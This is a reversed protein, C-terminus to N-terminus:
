LDLSKAVLTIDSGYAATTDDPRPSLPAIPPLGPTTDGVWIRIHNQAPFRFELSVGETPANYFRFAWPVKTSSDDHIPEVHGAWGAATVNLESPLRVVLSRAERKSTIQLRITQEGDLVSNETISVVPATMPVSTADSTLVSRELGATYAPASHKRATPGLIRGTWADPAADYSVWKAKNEDASVSYILTDPRPHESSWRSLRIGAGIFCASVVFIAMLSLRTRGALRDFVPPAIALLTTLLFAVAALGLYSLFLSVFFMYALPVLILLAPFLFAVHCISRTPETFRRGLLMGAMGAVFSWELVYTGGVLFWCLVLTLLSVALLQGAALNASGLKNGLFRQSAIALGFAIGVVGAFLLQNSTSDGELFEGAIFRASAFAAFSGGIIILFQLFFSGFGAITRGFSLELRPASRVCGLAFLIPALLAVMWAFWVPYVLLQSGFWNFYVLDPEKTQPLALNGFHRVIGLVNAGLHQVSRPELNEITDLRTHYSQYTELFAFNLGTVGAAKLPTFDTNNPLLKYIAAMLSTAMPYPAARAFERILAGNDNSTEFMLGPGSSGRAELNVMMGIRDKLEPHSAAYAQAGLLGRAEEGDTFLVMLDNKIAPGARLARIAELIVILGAGDDAAGPGEPVSDYHAALMITRSTAQGPFTAVINHVLGAHLNHAYQVTGIAQEVHVDGGLARLQEVLYARVRVAEDSGIPHPHKAIHALHTTAREASFVNESASAAVAPPPRTGFLALGGTLVVVLWLAAPTISALLPRPAM